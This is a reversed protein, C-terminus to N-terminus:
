PGSDIQLIVGNEGGGWTPLDLEQGRGSSVSDNAEWLQPNVAANLDSKLKQM